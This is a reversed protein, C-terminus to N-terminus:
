ILCDQRCWSSLDAADNSLPKYEDTCFPRYEPPWCAELRCLLRQQLPSSPPNVRAVYCEVVNCSQLLTFADGLLYRPMYGVIVRDETRLALAGQDAPNQFDHTLLLRDDPHLAAIRDISSTHLYRIGHALFHTQFPNGEALVKPVEFMELSDTARGGGSRILVTMPDAHAPDVALNSIYEPYEVRGKSMLRNQFLPFLEDSRYVQDLKPFSLLAQFGTQRAKMAGQLYSFEFEPQDPGLGAVLRGVPYYKKTGEDQWTVYLAQLQRQETLTM